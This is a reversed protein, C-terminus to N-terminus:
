FKGQLKNKQVSIDSFYLGFVPPGVFVLPAGVGRRRHEQLGLSAGEGGRVRGPKRLFHRAGSEPDGPAHLSTAPDVSQGELIFLRM